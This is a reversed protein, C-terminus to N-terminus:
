ALYRETVTIRHHLSHGAITWALSRVTFENGDAVGRRDWAHGPLSRLLLVTARRVASLEEALDALARRDAGSEAAYVNEDFSPYRSTDGRAFAMARAGFMREVDVVHGVVERVSWKGPAYRHGEKDPPVAALLDRWEEADSELTEALPEEVAAVYGEHFAPYEDPHPRRMPNAVSRGNETATHFAIEPVGWERRFRRARGSAPCEPAPAAAARCNLLSQIRRAPWRANM